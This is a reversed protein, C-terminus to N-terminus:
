GLGELVLWNSMHGLHDVKLSYCIISLFLTEENHNCVSHLLACHMKEKHSKLVIEVLHFSSMWVVLRFIKGLKICPYFIWSEFTMFFGFFRLFFPFFEKKPGKRKM